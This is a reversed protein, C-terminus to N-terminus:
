SAKANSKKFSSLTIRGRQWAPERVVWSKTCKFVFDKGSLSYTMKSETKDIVEAKEMLYNRIETLGKEAELLNQYAPIEKLTFLADDRDEQIKFYAKRLSDAKKLGNFTKYYKSYKDSM